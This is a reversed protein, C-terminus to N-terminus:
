AEAWEAQRTPDDEPLRMLSNLHAYAITDEDAHELLMIRLRDLKNAAETSSNRTSPM